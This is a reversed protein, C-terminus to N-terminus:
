CIDNAIVTKQIKIFIDIFCKPDEYNDDLM